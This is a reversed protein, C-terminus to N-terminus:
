RSGSFQEFAELFLAEARETSWFRLTVGLAPLTNGWLKPPVSMPAMNQEREDSLIALDATKVEDALPWRFGYKRAIVGMLRYEVAAYGPIHPKVPRPIDVLYAESADHLLADIALGPSTEAIKEALLVCHEAVSYFRLCHGGYRCQRALAGAIDRIDIDEARPDAPFFRRGTLTQMWNGRGLPIEAIAETMETM